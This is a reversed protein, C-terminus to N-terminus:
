KLVEMLKKLREEKVSKEIEEKMKSAPTGDRKSYKFTFASDFKVEKLLNLTDEFDKESEGPFGVIIDTTISVNPIRNKIEKVIELYKERTYGRNMLKLIRDSGSQVPLHIHKSIKQEAAILEILDSSIDKPHSTMFKIKEIESIKIVEKLLGTFDISDNLDQGYSNVNQGLLTIEKIGISVLNKVETLIENLNRSKSKGRVYPVVCYSCYNSCGQMITVYGSEKKSESYVDKILTNVEIKIDKNDGNCVIHKEGNKLRDLIDPIEKIRRPGVIFNVHPMRGILKSGDKEVLCGIVGIIKKSEKLNGLFSYVKNDAKERVTCTNILICDSEEISNAISYGKNILINKILNSDYENMQCGYTQIYFKPQNKTFDTSKDSM